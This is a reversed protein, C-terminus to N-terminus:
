NSSYRTSIIYLNLNLFDSSLFLICNSVFIYIVHWMIVTKVLLLLMNYRVSAFAIQTYLLGFRQFKMRDWSVNFYRKQWRILHQVFYIYLNIYFITRQKLCISVYSLKECIFCKEACSQIFRVKQKMAVEPHAQEYHHPAARIMPNPHHRM